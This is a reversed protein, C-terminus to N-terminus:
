WFRIKNYTKQTLPGTLGFLKRATHYFYNVKYHETFFNVFLMGFTVIVNFEICIITVIDDNMSIMRNWHSIHFCWLITIEALVLPAMHNTISHHFYLTILSM